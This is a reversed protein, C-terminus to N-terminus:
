RVILVACHAFEAVTGSVSGIARRRVKDSGRRGIIILDYGDREAVKCITDAPRGETILKIDCSLNAEDFVRKTQKLIKKGEEILAEKLQPGIDTSYSTPVHCVHILTAKAKFAGVLTAAHTAGRLSEDSGDTAVLIKSYM